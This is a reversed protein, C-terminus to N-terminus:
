KKHLFQCGLSLLTLEKPDEIGIEIVSIMKNNQDLGCTNQIAYRSNLNFNIWEEIMKSDVHHKISIKCFHKPIFKLKRLGLVNLANVQGRSLSM